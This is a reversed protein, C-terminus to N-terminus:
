FPFYIQIAVVAAVWTVLNLPFGVKVFDLYNYGGMRYVLDAISVAIPTFLVAVTANSLLETAFLTVGYLIILALLPSMGDMTGILVNTADFASSVTITMSGEQFVPHILAAQYHPRIRTPLEPRRNATLQFKGPRIGAKRGLVSM